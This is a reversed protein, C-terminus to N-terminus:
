SARRLFRELDQFTRAQWFVLLDRSDVHAADGQGPPAFLTAALPCRARSIAARSICANTESASAVPLEAGRWSTRWPREGSPKSPAKRLPKPRLHFDCDDSRAICETGAPAGM